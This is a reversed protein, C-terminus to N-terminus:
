HPQLATSLSTVFDGVKQIMQDPAHNEMVKLISSGVVVGDAFPALQRVQEPSSIGFGVLIPLAVHRRLRDLQRSVDKPDLTAAGTVGTLSVYYAFGSGREAILTARKADSTPTLLFIQDLENQRLEFNLEASEEVPLDVVLVGDVGASRAALAFKKLGFQLIPNYYGMLLIPIQSHRRVAAVTAITKALTMGNKLARESARQIVPGDAMPDSFPVGLEIIDAGCRELELVLDVTTEPSPDGAVVYTALAKRKIASLKSLKEHIRSPM